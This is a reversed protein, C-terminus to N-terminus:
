VLKNNIFIRAASSFTRIEMAWDRIVQDHLVCLRYTAFGKSPLKNNKIKLDNWYSPVAVSTDPLPPNKREFDAPTLLQDWYFDWKGDLKILNHKSLTKGRLDLKGDKIEFNSYNPRLSFVLFAIIFILISILLFSIFIKDFKM